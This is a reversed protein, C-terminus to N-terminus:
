NERNRKFLNFRCEERLNEDRISYQGVTRSSPQERIGTRLKGGWEDLMHTLVQTGLVKECGVVVGM